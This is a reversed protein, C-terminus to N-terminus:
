REVVTFRGDGEDILLPDTIKIGMGASLMFRFSEHRRERSKQVTFQVTPEAQAAADAPRPFTVFRDSFRFKFLTASAEDNTRCQILGWEDSTVEMLLQNQGLFEGIEAAFAVINTLTSPKEPRLYFTFRATV